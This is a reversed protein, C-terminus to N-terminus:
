PQEEAMQAEARQLWMRVMAPAATDGTYGDLLMEIAAVDEVTMSVGHPVRGAQRKSDFELELDALQKELKKIHALYTSRMYRMAGVIADAGHQEFSRAAGEAVAIIREDSWENM